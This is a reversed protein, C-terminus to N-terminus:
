PEMTEPDPGGPGRMGKPRRPQLRRLTEQQAPTLLNKVRILLGLQTRKMREEVKMLEDVRALAAAEDVRDAALLKELAGSKEELQWRLEIVQKQTDSMEKTIAQRQADALGIEAQHEMILTPLFLQRMLAPRRMRGPGLMDAHAAGMLAVLALATATLRAPPRM